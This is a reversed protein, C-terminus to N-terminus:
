FGEEYVKKLGESLMTKPKTLKMKMASIDAILDSQADESYSFLPSNDVIDGIINVLEKISVVEDGGINFIYEGKLSMINEVAAAADDIYVPNIKIGENGTLTISNGEIVNQMLRPLLMTKNQREGYMFFPRLIAFTEFSNSYNKLLMEASLKSNLYFGKLNNISIDFEEKLPKEYNTYIGGSSAYIFKRVGKSIAWNAIKIPANINIELMDLAGDPFHKYMNSQAVYFISDIKDPFCSVEFNTLDLELTEINKNLEFNIKTEKRVSAYVYHEKSLNTVLKRGLLGNAGIVLIKM